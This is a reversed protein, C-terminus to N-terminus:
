ELETSKKDSVVGLRLTNFVFLQEQKTKLKLVSCLETALRIQKLDYQTKVCIVNVVGKRYSIFKADDEFSADAGEFGTKFGNKKLYAHIKECSMVFFDIDKNKTNSIFYSGSPIVTSYQAMDSQLKLLDIPLKSM